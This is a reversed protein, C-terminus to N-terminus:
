TAVGKFRGNLLYRGNSARFTDRKTQEYDDVLITSIHMKILKDYIEPSYMKMDLGFLRRLTEKNKNDPVLNELLYDRYELWSNFMYPLEKPVFFDSRLTNVTNVGSVRKTVKAWTDSELEHLFFLSKVATEHHVNSVRMQPLKVGHQYMYDYLATYEWNNDHIAKWIDTYSWDYIPYFTFHKKAVNEKKGWTIWKYSPYTTLGLTRAPSEEARVGSIRAVPVDPYTVKNYAEFLKAFRDTGYNNDHISYTEKERIWEAGEEWCNLWYQDTSTANFIKIPCQLWIPEVKDNQMVIRIYDIVCQWEAEQDIFFVKM